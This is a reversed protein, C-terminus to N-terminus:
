EHARVLEKLWKILDPIDEIAIDMRAERGFGSETDGSWPNDITIHLTTVDGIERYRLTMPYFEISNGVSDAGTIILKQRERTVNDSM